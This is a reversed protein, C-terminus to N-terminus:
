QYKMYEEVKERLTGESLLRDACVCIEWKLWYKEVAKRFRDEDIKGKYIVEDGKYFTIDKIRRIITYEEEDNLVYSGAYRNPNDFLDNGSYGLLTHEQLMPELDYLVSELNEIIESESLTRREYDWNTYKPIDSDEWVSVYLFEEFLKARVFQRVEPSMHLLLVASEHTYKGNVIENQNDVVTCLHNGYISSKVLRAWKKDLPHNKYESRLNYDIM